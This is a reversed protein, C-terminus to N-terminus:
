FSCEGHRMFFTLACRGVSALTVRLTKAYFNEAALGDESARDDDALAAGLEVRAAVDAGAAVPREERELVAGDFVVLRMALDRDDGGSRLSSFSKAKLRLGFRAANKRARSRGAEVVG